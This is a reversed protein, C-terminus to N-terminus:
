AQFLLLVLTVPFVKEPEGERAQCESDAQSPDQLVGCAGSESEDRWGLTYCHKSVWLPLFFVIHFWLQVGLIYM